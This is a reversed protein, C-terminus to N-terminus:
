LLVVSLLGFILLCLSVFCVFCVERRRKQGASREHVVRTWYKIRDQASEDDPSFADATEWSLTTNEWLIRFMMVGDENHADVIDSWPADDMDTQGMKEALLSYIRSQANADDLSFSSRPEWTMTDNSWLVQFKWVAVGNKYVVDADVIAKYTFVDQEPKPKLKLKLELAPKMKRKPHLDIMRKREANAVTSKSKARRLVLALAPAAESEPKPASAFAPASSASKHAFEIDQADAQAKKVLENADSRSMSAPILVVFVSIMRANQSRGGGYKFTHATCAKLGSKTAADSVVRALSAEPNEAKHLSADRPCFTYVLVSPLTPSVLAIAAQLAGSKEVTTASGCADFFLVRLRGVFEGARRVLEVEAFGSEITAIGNADRRMTEIKEPSGTNFVIVDSESMATEAGKRVAKSSHVSADDLGISLPKDCARLQLRRVLASLIRNFVRKHFCESKKASPYSKCSLKSDM